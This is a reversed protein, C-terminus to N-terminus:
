SRGQAIKTNWTRIRGMRIEFQWQAANAFAMGIMYARQTPSQSLLTGNVRQRLTSTISLLCSIRWFEVLAWSAIASHNTYSDAM